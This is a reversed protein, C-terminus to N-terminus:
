VILMKDELDFYFDAKGKWLQAALEEQNMDMLSLLAIHLVGDVALRRQHGKEGDLEESGGEPCQPYDLSLLKWLKKMEKDLFKHANEEATQFVVSRVFIM